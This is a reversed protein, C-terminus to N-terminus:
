DWDIDDPDPAEPLDEVPVEIGPPFPEAEDDIDAPLSELAEITAGHAASRTPVAKLVLDFGCAKCLKAIMVVTSSRYDNEIRSVTSQTSNSREALESQSIGTATRLNILLQAATRGSIEVQPTTDIAADEARAQDEWRKRQVIRVM